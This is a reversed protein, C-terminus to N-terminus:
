KLRNNIFLLSVLPITMWFILAWPSAFYGYTSASIYGLAVSKPLFSLFVSVIMGTVLISMVFLRWFFDTGASAIHLDFLREDITTLLVLLIVFVIAKGYISFALLETPLVGVFALAIYVNILINVLKWRGFIFGFAISLGIFLLFLSFDGALNKPLHISSFFNLFQAM